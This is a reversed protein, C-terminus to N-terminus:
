SKAYRFVERGASMDSFMTLERSEPIIFYLKGIVPRFVKFVNVAPLLGGSFLSCRGCLFAGGASKASESMFYDPVPSLAFM